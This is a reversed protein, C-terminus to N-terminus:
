VLADQLWVVRPLCIRNASLEVSDVLLGLDRCHKLLEAALSHPILKVIILLAWFQYCCTDSGIKGCAPALQPCCVKAAEGLAEKAADAEQRLLGNAVCTTKLRLTLAESKAVM